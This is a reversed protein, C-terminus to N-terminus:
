SIEIMGLHFFELLKQWFSKKQEKVSVYVPLTKITEDDMTIKVIGVQDNNKYKKLKELQVMVKVSSKEEETLPYSFSEKVYVKDSYFNQDISFNNKDIIQYNEYTDFAYDYLNIHSNYEDPDNLTVATLDLGNRSATTVLTRGASPTYGTKGGTAYKYSTLLKNRNYWLYTKDEGKVVYKQTGSIKRYEELKNAYCSLIAMDRATSYNQTEEDLGHANRFITNKMGIEKAKQNMMEVFKEENGGIYTAIVVAADNGSRLLLGYLLDRLSMKENLEIYINSGYMKLVEEGVTVIDDLKGSEIALTATMIKTISAILRKEDPNKEYLVRGSNLDMLIASKGSVTVAKVSLPFFFLMMLIAIALKRMCDGLEDYSLLWFIM